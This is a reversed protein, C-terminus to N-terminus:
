KSISIENLSKWMRAKARAHSPGQSTATEPPEDGGEIIVWQVRYTKRIHSFVHIVDGAPQIKVITCSPDSREIDTSGPVRIPSQFLASFQARLIEVFRVDSLTGSVNAETPFEYLGALLGIM